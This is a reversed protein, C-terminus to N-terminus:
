YLEILSSDEDRLAILTGRIDYARLGKSPSNLITTIKSNEVFGLDLLRRRLAGTCNLKKIKKTESIPLLNLTYKTNNM